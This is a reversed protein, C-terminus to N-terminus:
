CSGPETFIGYDWNKVGTKKEEIWGKQQLAKVILWNMGGHGLLLVSEHAQALAILKEASREARERSKQLSRGFSGIGGFSFLRSMMMWTGPTFKLLPLRFLVIEAENFVSDAVDPKKNLLELSDATRSLASCVLVRSEELLSKLIEDEPLAEDIPASDYAELWTNMATADMSETRPLLVKAHRVLTIKM